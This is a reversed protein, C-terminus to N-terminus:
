SDKRPVPPRFEYVNRLALSEHIGLSQRLRIFASEALPGDVHLGETDLIWYDVVSPDEEEFTDDPDNPSRRKMGHRKAIIFRGDTACEVVLNPIIPIGDNWAEPAIVIQLGSTRHIYYDGALPTSFDSAGPGPFVFGTKRMERWLCVGFALFLLVAVALVRCIARWLDKM